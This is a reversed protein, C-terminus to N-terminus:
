DPLLDGYKKMYENGTVQNENNNDQMSQVQETDNRLGDYNRQWFIGIVPNIKGQSILEERSMSCVSYILEALKKYRPDDANRQGNKWYSLTMTTIGLATCAGINGIRMGNQLCLTLYNQFCSLLSEPNKRDANKAIEITQLSHQIVRANLDKDEPNTAPLAGANARRQILAADSMTYGKNKRGTGTKRKGGTGTKKSGTGTKAVRAM